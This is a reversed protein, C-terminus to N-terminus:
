AQPHSSKLILNHNQLARTLGLISHFGGNHLIPTKAKTDKPEAPLWPVKSSPKDVGQMNPLTVLQGRVPTRKVRSIQTTVGRLPRLPQTQGSPHPSTPTRRSRQPGRHRIRPPRPRPARWVGESPISLTDSDETPESGEAGRRLHRKARPFALIIKM